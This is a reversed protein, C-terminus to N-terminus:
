EQGYPNTRSVRYLVRYEIIVGAVTELANAPFVEAASTEDIDIVLGGLHYDAAMAQQVKALFSEVTALIDAQAAVYLVVFVQMDRTILTNVTEEVTDFGPVINAVPFSVVALPDLKGRHVAKIGDVGLLVTKIADFIKERQSDM